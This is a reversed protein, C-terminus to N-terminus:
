GDKRWVTHGGIVMEKLSPAGWTYLPTLARPSDVVLYDAVAGPSLTGWTPQGLALGANATASVLTEEVSMGLTAVALHLAPLLGFVPSSGPNHDSAIAVNVGSAMVTARSPTPRRLLLAAVPLFTAVTGAAALADLDAATALELHDASVGGLEAVLRAAGTHTLQEAHAKVRLGLELAGELIRRTEALTFAGEDCFVDVADALGRRAAEPLTETVFADVYAGRPTDRPPVHALLTTTVRQPGEAGLRRAVQLMRLEGETDLCYGSKVEIATVGNRLFSSARRMAALLLASESAARTAEVTRHIGNGAALVEEYPTGRARMLYEDLRDGAWVLHTHSDVLGPIVASGGLDVAPWAAYAKPLATEEGVWAVHGDQLAMAAGAVAVHPTFLESIGKVLTGEPPPVHSM